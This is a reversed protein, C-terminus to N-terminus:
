LSLLEFAPYSSLLTAFAEPPSGAAVPFYRQVESKFRDLYAKLIEPKEADSLPRLRFRLRTRGKKLTVEGGAEANRVWQTRGRPAVLFRKGNLELLNIPNSYLKGSKRGRVELLYNYNFGLGLGVLFGFVRNFIKEVATPQRFVPLPPTM